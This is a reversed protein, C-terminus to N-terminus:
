RNPNWGMARDALHFLEETTIRKGRCASPSRVLHKNRGARFVQLGSSRLKMVAEYLPMPEPSVLRPQVVIGFLDREGKKRRM